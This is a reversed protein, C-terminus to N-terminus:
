SRGILTQFYAKTKELGRQLSTEPRWGLERRAKEWSLCIKFVEGPRAADYRPEKSYGTAAKVLGLLANVSTGVGTGINYTGRSGREMARLNAEAVDDVYVFDREQEGTGFVVVEAGRLMREMFIAVVGAEGYPDQRPGYVNAYRLISYDLGFTRGYLGVYLEGAYKSTAYPSLPRVPHAEDCPLYEPEGYLAGGTSAFIFKRVQHRRSLELLHLLGLVNVRAGELPEKMSAAVSAQAAHHNVIEPGERAFVEELAPDRIDLPYFRAQPPVFDRRGTSLNDVVAVQHGQEVLRDALRSGIFGAGGTVLVKAM